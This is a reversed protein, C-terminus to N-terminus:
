QQGEMKDFLAVEQAVLYARIRGIDYLRTNPAPANFHNAGSRTRKFNNNQITLLERRELNLKVLEAGIYVLLQASSAENQVIM